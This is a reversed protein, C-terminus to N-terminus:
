PKSRRKPLLYFVMAVVGLTSGPLKRWRQMLGESKTVVEWGPYRAARSFFGDRSAVRAKCIASQIEAVGVLPVAQLACSADTCVAPAAGEHSTWRVTKWIMVGDSEGM